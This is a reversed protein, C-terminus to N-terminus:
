HSRPAAFRSKPCVSLARVGLPIDPGGRRSPLSPLPSVKFPLHFGLVFLTADPQFRDTVSRVRRHLLAKSDRAERERPPPLFPLLALFRLSAARSGTLPSRRPTHADRPHAAPERRPARAPFAVFGMAPVPHLVGPLETRLFGDLHHLVMRVSCGTAPPAASAIDPEESSPPHPRVPHHVTSPRSLERSSPNCSTPALRCETMGAAAPVRFSVGLPLLYASSTLESVADGPPM